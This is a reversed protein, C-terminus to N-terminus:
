RRTEIWILHAILSSAGMITLRLVSQFEKKEGRIEVKVPKPLAVEELKYTLVERPDFDTTTRGEVVLQGSVTRLDKVDQEQPKSKPEHQSLIQPTVSLLTALVMYLFMRKMEFM